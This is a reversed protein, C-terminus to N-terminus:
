FQNILINGTNGNENSNGGLINVKLKGTIFSEDSQTKLDEANFINDKDDDFCIVAFDEFTQARLYEPKLINESLNGHLSTEPNISDDIIEFTAESDSFFKEFHFPEKVKKKTFIKKLVGDVNDISNPERFSIQRVPVLNIPHGVKKSINREISPKAELNESFYQKVFNENRVYTLSALSEYENMSASQDQHCSSELTKPSLYVEDASTVVQIRKGEDKKNKIPNLEDFTSLTQYDLEAEKEYEEEVDGYPIMVNDWVLSPKKKIVRRTITYDVSNLSKSYCGDISSKGAAYFDDTDERFSDESLVTNKKLSHDAEKVECVNDKFNNVVDTIPITNLYEKDIEIKSEADFNSEDAAECRNTSKALSDVTDERFNDENLIKNKILSHDAETGECVNDEFSNTVRTIPIKNLCEEDIGLKNEADFNSENAAECRNTSKALSDVTDERFNDENLIKNKILSHDAETGECVIDEFSNTVRTIPIKNLCEEDIGLKNEADFNSEDAAECRNTSKALSDVTDERFNDENLIKNKILSHDAETGECVIDEFSNTVRTIPIKNLCEEDIGLKNEAEFNSENIEKNLPVDYTLLKNASQNSSIMKSSTIVSSQGNEKQTFSENVFIECETKTEYMSHQNKFCDEIKYEHTRNIDNVQEVNTSSIQEKNYDYWLCKKQTIKKSDDALIESHSAPINTKSNQEEDNKVAQCSENLTLFSNLSRHEFPELPIEFEM